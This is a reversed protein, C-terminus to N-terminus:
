TFIENQSYLFYQQAPWFTEETEETLHKPFIWVLKKLWCMTIDPWYYLDNELKM